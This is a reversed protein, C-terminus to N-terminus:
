QDEEAQTRLSAEMAEAAAQDEAHAIEENYEEVRGDVIRFEGSSTILEYGEGSQLQNSLRRYESVNGDQKAQEAAIFDQEMADPMATIQYQYYGDPMTNGSEDYMEFTPASGGAFSASWSAPGGVSVDASSYGAPIDWSISDVWYTPELDNNAMVNPTTFGALTLTAGILLSKQFNNKM